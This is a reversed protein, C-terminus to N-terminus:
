RRQRLSVEEDPYAQPELEQEKKSTDMKAVKGAECWNIIEDMYHGGAMFHRPGFEVRIQDTKVGTEKFEAINKKVNHIRKEDHPMHVFLAPIDKPYGKPMGLPASSDGKIRVENAVIVSCSIGMDPGSRTALEPVTRAGASMGMLIVPKGELNEERKLHNLSAKFGPIDKSNTCGRPNDIGGQVAAVLYGKRRAKKRALMEEKHAGCRNKKCGMFNYGDPGKPTFMDAAMNGCGHLYLMIGKVEGKPRQWVIAAGGEPKAYKPHLDDIRSKALLTAEALTVVLLCIVARM